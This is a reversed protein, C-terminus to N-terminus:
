NAELKKVLDVVAAPQDMLEKYISEIEEGTIPEMDLRSRKVEDLLEPDKLSKSYADRLIKVREQPVGPPAVMPRGLEDGALL